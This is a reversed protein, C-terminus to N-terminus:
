TSSWWSVQCSRRAGRRRSRVRRLGDFTGPRRKSLSGSPRRTERAGQRIDESSVEVPDTLEDFRRAYERLAPDGRRRVTDVIRAVRREVTADTAQGRDVLRRLARTNSSVIIRM